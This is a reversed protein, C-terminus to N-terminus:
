YEISFINNPIIYFNHNSCSFFTFHINKVLKEDKTQCWFVYPHVLPEQKGWALNENCDMINENANQTDLVQFHPTTIKGLNLDAQTCTLGSLYYSLSTKCLAHAGHVHTHTSCALCSMVLAQM